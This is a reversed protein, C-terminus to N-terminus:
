RGDGSPSAPPLRLTFTSGRAEQSEVTLEAGLREALEHAFHLGIGLGSATERANDARYYRVFIQAMAREPIGIGRDTVRIATSGDRLEDLGLTIPEERPSYKIANDVLMVVIQHIRQRDSRVLAHSAPAEFRFRREPWTLRFDEVIEQLLERPDFSEIRLTAPRGARFDDIVTDALRALMLANRLARPMADTPIPVRRRLALDVARLSTLIAQIPSSLQHAAMALIAEREDGRNPGCREVHARVLTLSWYSREAGHHAAVGLELRLTSGDARRATRALRRAEGGRISRLPLPEALLAKLPKGLLGGSRYGLAREAATNAYVVEDANVIVVGVPTERVVEEFSIKTTLV